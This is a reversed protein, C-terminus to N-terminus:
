IYTCHRIQGGPPTYTYGVGPLTFQYAMPLSSVESSSSEESSSSSSSSDQGNTGGADSRSSSDSSSSQDQHGEVWPQETGSNAAQVPVTKPADRTRHNQQHRPVLVALLTIAVALAAVIVVGVIVRKRLLKQALRHFLEPKLIPQM